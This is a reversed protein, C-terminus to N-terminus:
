CDVYDSGVNQLCISAVRTDQLYGDTIIFSKSIDNMRMWPGWMQIHARYGPDPEAGRTNTHKRLFFEQFMYKKIM